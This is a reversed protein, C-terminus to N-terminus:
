ISAEAPWAWLDPDMNVGGNEKLLFNVFIFYAETKSM